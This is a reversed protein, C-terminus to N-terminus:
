ATYSGVQIYSSDIVDLSVISVQLDDYHVLVGEIIAYTTDSVSCGNSVLLM